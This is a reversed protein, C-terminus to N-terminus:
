GHTFTRIVQTTQGRRPTYRSTRRALEAQSSLAETSCQGLHLQVRFDSMEGTKERADLLVQGPVTVFM